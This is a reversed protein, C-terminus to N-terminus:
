NRIVHVPLKATEYSQQDYMLAGQDTIILKFETYEIEKYIVGNATPVVLGYAIAKLFPLVTLGSKTQITPDAGHALLLKIKECNLENAAVHLATVGNDNQLNPNAEAELLLQMISPETKSHGAVMLATVGGDGQTNLNAGSEIFAKIAGSDNNEIADFLPGNKDIWLWLRTCINCFRGFSKPAELGDAPSLMAQTTNYRVSFGGLLLLIFLFSQANKM